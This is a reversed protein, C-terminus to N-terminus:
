RVVGRHIYLPKGGGSNPQLELNDPDLPIKRFHSFRLIILTPVAYLQDGERTITAICFTHEEDIALQILVPISLDIQDAPM